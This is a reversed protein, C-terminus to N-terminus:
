AELSIILQLLPSTAHRVVADVSGNNILNRTPQSNLFTSKEEISLRLGHAHLAAGVTDLFQIGQAVQAPKTHASIEMDIWYGDWGRKLAEAVFVKAFSDAYKWGEYAYEGGM